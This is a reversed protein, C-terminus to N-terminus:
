FQAEGGNTNGPMIVPAWEQVPTKGRRELAEEFLLGLDVDGLVGAADPHDATGDMNTVFTWVAAKTDMFDTARELANLLAKAHTLARKNQPNQQNKQM